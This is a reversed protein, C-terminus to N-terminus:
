TLSRYGAHLGRAKGEALGLTFEAYHPSLGETELATGPNRRQAGEM